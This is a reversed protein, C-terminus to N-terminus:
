SLIDFALMWNMKCCYRISNPDLDIGGEMSPLEYLFTESAKCQFHGAIRMTCLAIVTQLYNLCAKQSFTRYKAFLKHTNVGVSRGASWDIHYFSRRRFISESVKQSYNRANELLKGWPWHRKWNYFFRRRGGCLTHYAQSQRSCHITICQVM